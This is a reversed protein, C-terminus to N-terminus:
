RLKLRANPMGVQVLLKNVKEELPKVQKKRGASIKDALEIAEEYTDTAEKEKQQIQIM